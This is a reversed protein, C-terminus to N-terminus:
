CPNVRSHRSTSTAAGPTKSTRAFVPRFKSDDKKTLPLRHTGVCCRHDDRSLWCHESKAVKPWKLSSIIFSPTYYFFSNHRTLYLTRLRPDRNRLERQGSTHLNQSISLDHRGHSM